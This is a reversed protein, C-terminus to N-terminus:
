LAQQVNLVNDLFESVLGPSLTHTHTVTRSDLISIIYHLLLKAFSFSHNSLVLPFNSSDSSQQHM